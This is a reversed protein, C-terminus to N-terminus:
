IISIFARNNDEESSSSYTKVDFLTATLSRKQKKLFNPCEAQYHGLGEYEKCRFSINTKGTTNGNDRRRNFFPKWKQM